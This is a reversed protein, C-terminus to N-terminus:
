HPVEIDEYIISVPLSLDISALEIDDGASYQIYLWGDPQRRYVEVSSKHQAVLVYEQLSDLRQYNLRKETRDTVTTSPSLVKIVLLPRTETYEDTKNAENAPDNCSVVLDPYYGRNLAKIFVKMDGGGIRCSTGRLHPRIAAVLNFAITNHVRSAGGMAILEGDIYEHRVDTERELTCYETVSLRQIKQVQSM